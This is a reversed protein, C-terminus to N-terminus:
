FSFATNTLWQWVLQCTKLRSVAQLSRRYLGLKVSVIHHQLSNSVSIFLLFVLFPLMEYRNTSNSNSIFIDLFNISKFFPWHFGSIDFILSLIDSIASHIHDAGGIYLFSLESFLVFCFFCRLFFYKISLLLASINKLFFHFKLFFHDTFM